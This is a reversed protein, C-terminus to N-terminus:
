TGDSRLATKRDGSSGEHGFADEIHASASGPAGIGDGPTRRYVGRYIGPAVERTPLGTLRSGLDVRVLAGPTARVVVEIVGAEGAERVQSDVSAITPEAHRPVGDAPQEPLTALLNSLYSVTLREFSTGGSGKAEEAVAEFLQGARALFGGYRRLRYDASWYLRGDAGHLRWTGRIGRRRILPMRLSSVAFGDSSVLGDVGLSRCLAAIEGASLGGPAVAFRDPDGMLGRKSLVRDVHENEVVATNRVRLHERLLRRFTEREQPTAEGTVPLVAVSRPAPADDAVQARISSCGSMLSIAVLALAGIRMM